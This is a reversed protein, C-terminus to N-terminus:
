EANNNARSVVNGYFSSGARYSDGGVGGAGDPVVYNDESSIGASVVVSGIILEGYLVPVCAGQASVNQIGNFVYSQRDDEQKKHDKPTPALMQVIGGIIMSIGMGYLYNSVPNPAGGMWWQIVAGAAILVVGMIVQMTGAKKSGAIVPIIRIVQDGTPARLEDEGINEKGNFVTFALGKDKAEMLFREFGPKMACLARVAEAPNAVALRHERGFQRALSGSLKITRIAEM